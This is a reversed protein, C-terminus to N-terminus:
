VAFSTADITVAVPGGAIAAKLQAASKPPVTNVKDVFAKPDGSLKTPCAGSQGSSGSVYPMDKTLHQGIKGVYDM